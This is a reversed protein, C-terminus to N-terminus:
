AHENRVEPAAPQTGSQEETTQIRSVLASEVRHGEIREARIHLACADVEPTEGDRPIMTLRSFLLGGLTDFEEDLPLQM